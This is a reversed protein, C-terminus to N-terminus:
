RSFFQRAADNRPTAFCRFGSHRGNLATDIITTTTGIIVTIGIAVL